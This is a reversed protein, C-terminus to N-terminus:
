QINELMRRAENLLKPDDKIQPELELLERLEQEANKEQGISRYHKALDIRFLIQDPDLEIAKQLYEKAKENSAGSPLGESVINAAFRKVNSINAINSHWVGYLHWAPAYDPNNKVATDIHKKIIHSKRIRENKEALDSLRGNAVAYVYHSQGSDPYMLISKEGYYLARKYLERKKEEDDKRYGERAFLLSVNWLATFNNRDKELVELYLNLAEEEEMNNFREDALQLLSDVETQAWTATVLGSDIIIAFLLLLLVNM